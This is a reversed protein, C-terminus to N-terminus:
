DPESSTPGWIRKDQRGVPRRYTGRSDVVCVHRVVGIRAQTTRASQRDKYPISIRWVQALSVYQQVLM